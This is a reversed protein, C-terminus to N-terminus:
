AGGLGVLNEGGADARQRRHRLPEYARETEGDPTGEANVMRAQARVVVDRTIQPGDVKVGPFERAHKLADEVHANLSTTLWRM